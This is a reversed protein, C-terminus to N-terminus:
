RVAGFRSDFWNLTEKVAENLPLNHGTDYRIRRKDEAPAGLLRFFPQSSAEDPFNYDYRGSLVLTPTRVRPAFNIADVEPVPRELYLGPLWLAAARFRPEMALIVPSLAAGRSVGVYGLRDHDIDPRTVLYDVTRSVDKSLLIVHDRWGTSSKRQDSHLDDTGREFTGKYISLVVARGSRMLYAFPPNSVIAASSRLDWANAPPMYLVTQFPPKASKPLFLYAIVREQPYAAAFTIKELRWDPNTDDTREVVSKLDVPDYSYVRAYAAFIEDNVPTEQDYNRSPSAIPASLPTFSPDGEDLKM